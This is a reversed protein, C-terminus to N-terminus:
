KKKKPKEECSGCCSQCDKCSNCGIYALGALVFAVTYWEINWFEWIGLNDLLFLVGFALLIFGTGKGCKQCMCM